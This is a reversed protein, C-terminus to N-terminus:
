PALRVAATEEEAPAAAPAPEDDVMDPLETEVNRLRPSRWAVAVTLLVLVGLVMFLLGIGRGEGVGLVRGVSGALIGGPAMMPEFVRDALPGALLSALPLTSMAIMRRVSFVRGQLDPPVKVQWIAQSSALIIPSVFLFVFAASGILVASPRLGGLLLILGQVALPIYLGYVKRQPGGWVSMLISGVLMGAGAVSLVVGLVEATTFGLVMPTILVQLMAMCINTSAFLLLIGLLGRREQIFQWGWWAERLLSGKQASGEPTARARPFRVVLLTLLAVLFTAFDILLVKAPGITAVLAGAAAPALIQALAMGSQVMGSARGLHRKPVLLTTAASFAPWQLSTLAASVAGLVYIHWIELRDVWLLLAFALTCLGAGTDSVIMAWRRDWRDVLAGAIPSLVIGPLTIFFTILAFRTVSGGSTQFAWVGLAFGSLGSGVASVVQGFWVTVFASFGQPPEFARAM